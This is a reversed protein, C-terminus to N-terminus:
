REYLLLKEQDIIPKLHKSLAQSSILDVKSGLIKELEQQMRIFELGIKESYDLEVLLDVDSEQHETGKAQSGFLFVREVPKNRFYAKIKHIDESSIKM